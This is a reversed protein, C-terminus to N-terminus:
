NYPQSVFCFQCSFSHVSKRHPIYVEYLEMIANEKERGSVVLDLVVAEPPCRMKALVLAIMWMQTHM